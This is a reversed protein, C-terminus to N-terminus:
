LHFHFTQIVIQKKTRKSSIHLTKKYNFPPPSATRPSPLFPVEARLITAQISSCQKPVNIAQSTKTKLTRGDLIWPVFVNTALSKTTATRTRPRTRSRTSTKRRVHQFGNGGM